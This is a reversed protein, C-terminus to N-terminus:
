LIDVVNGSGDQRVAKEEFPTGIRSTGLRSTDKALGFHWGFDDQWSKSIGHNAEHTAVLAEIIQGTWLGFTIQQEACSCPSLNTFGRLRM